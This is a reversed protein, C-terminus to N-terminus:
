STGIKMKTNSKQLKKVCNHPTHACEDGQSHSAALAPASRAILDIPWNGANSPVGSTM